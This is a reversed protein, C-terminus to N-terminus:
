HRSRNRGRKMKMKHFIGFVFSGAIIAFLLTALGSFVLSLTWNAVVFLNLEGAQPNNLFEQAREEVEGLSAPSVLVESNQIPGKIVLFGNDDAKSYHDSGGTRRTRTVRGERTRSDIGKVPDVWVTWYPVVFFACSQIRARVRGETREFRIKSVPAVGTLIVFVGILIIVGVIQTMVRNLRGPPERVPRAPRYGSEPSPSHNDSRSM